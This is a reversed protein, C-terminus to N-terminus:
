HITYSVSVTWIASGKIFTIAERYTGSHVNPRATVSVQIQESENLAINRSAATVDLWTGQNTQESYSWMTTAGGCNTLTITETPFPFSYSQAFFALNSPSGKLCDSGSISSSTSSPTKITGPSTTNVITSVNNKVMPTLGSKGMGLAIHQMLAYFHASGYWLGVSGTVLMILTVFVLATRWIGKLPRLRRAAPKIPLPKTPIQSTDLPLSALQVAVVHTATLKSDKYAKQLADAFAMVNEYRQAPKKALAKFVVREV